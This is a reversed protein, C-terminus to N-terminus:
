VFGLWGGTDKRKLCANVRTVAVALKGVFPEELVQTSARKLLTLAMRMVAEKCGM